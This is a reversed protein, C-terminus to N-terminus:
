HCYFYDGDSDEETMETKIVKEEKMIGIDTQSDGITQLHISKLVENGNNM